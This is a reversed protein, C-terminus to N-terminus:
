NSGIDIKIRGPLLPFHKIWDPTLVMEPNKIQPIGEMLLVLGEYISKGTLSRILLDKNWAAMLNRSANENWYFRGDEDKSVKTDRKIEVAADVAKFKPDLNQDLIQLGLKEEDKKDVVLASCTFRLKLFAQDSPEGIKPTESRSLENSLAASKDVLISGDPLKSSIEEECQQILRIRLEKELQDYDSATPTPFYLDSGGTTPKLNTISIISDLGSIHTISGADVNSRTGPEVAEVEGVVQSTSIAVLTVESTLYFEIVPSDNTSVITGKPLTIPKNALNTLVVQGTAKNKPIVVQGSSDGALESEVETSYTEAPIIGTIEPTKASPDVIVNYTVEQRTLMPYITVHASPIFILLSITLVLLLGLGLLIKQVRVPKKISTPKTFAKKIEQLKEAGKITRPPIASTKEPWPKKEAEPASSFCPIGQERAIERMIRDRTILAVTSGNTAAYRRILKMTLPSQDLPYGNPFFFVMRPSKAWTMKDKISILDDHLDIQILTTKM